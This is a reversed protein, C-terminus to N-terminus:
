NITNCMCPQDTEKDGGSEEDGEGRRPVASMSM